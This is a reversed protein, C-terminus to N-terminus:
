SPGSFHRRCWGHPGARPQPAKEAIASFRDPRRREPSQPLAVLLAAEGISLRKPEKGFYALAAARAGEINGGFPARTLYLDLIESKSFRHELQIARLIQRLKGWATREHRGEVLRAVQMTLTSAGSVIRLNTLLQWGARALALPDLGPHSFFRRDEYALLMQIYRADVESVRGPLRWRGDGAVFARLLKDDRDLVSVSLGGRPELPIPGLSVSAATILILGFTLFASIALGCFKAAQRFRNSFRRGSARQGVM